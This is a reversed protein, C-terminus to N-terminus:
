LTSEVSLVVSDASPFVSVKLVLPVFGSPPITSLVTTRWRTEPVEPITPWHFVLFTLLLEGSVRSSAAAPSSPRVIVTTSKWNFHSALNSPLSEGQVPGVTAAPQVM